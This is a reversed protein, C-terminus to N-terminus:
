CSFYFYIVESKIEEENEDEAVHEEEEGDKDKDQYSLKYILLYAKQSINENPHSKLCEIKDLGGCEKIAFSYPNTDDNKQSLKLLDNLSNLAVEVIEVQEVTLLDCLSPIVNLEVLYRTQEPTGGSSLNAVVWAAERRAKNEGKALIELM